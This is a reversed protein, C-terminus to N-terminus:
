GLPISRMNEELWRAWGRLSLVFSVIFHLEVFNLSLPSFSPSQLLSQALYLPLDVFAFSWARNRIARVLVGCRWLHSQSLRGPLSAYQNWSRLARIRNQRFSPLIAPNVRFPNDTRYRSSQPPCPLLAFSSVGAALWYRFRFCSSSPTKPALAM